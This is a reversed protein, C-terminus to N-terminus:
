AAGSAPLEVTFSAGGGPQNAAGIRGAHRTVIAAAIALGLGTGDTDEGHARWFRDFVRPLDEPRIGPGDDAVTLVARDDRRRVAVRVVGRVPSHRVANDVLITVLQRLRVPDGQVVVPEPDVQVSVGRGAAPAALAASAEAALDGLEVPQVVLDLSDADARALLLLDDVLTSLHGVEAEIDDLASGVARVPVDPHRRLHDVSTRVVTLPTRLEHSADAAFERQRLLALRRGALAARIPVLAREAYIAGLVISALLAVLGGLVLVTRLSDLAREEATRDQVVQIVYPTGPILGRLRLLERGQLSLFRWPVGDVVVERLDRGNAWAAAIAAADPGTPPDSREPRLPDMGLPALFAFTGSGRGGFSLELPPPEGIGSSGQIYAEVLLAREALLTTGNAALSDKVAAFIATGLLVLVVLTAGGSWAALRWRV